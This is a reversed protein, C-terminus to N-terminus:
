TFDKEHCLEDLTKEKCSMERIRYLRQVFEVESLKEREDFWQEALSNAPRVIFCWPEKWYRVVLFPLGRTHSSSYNNALSRLARYTPHNIEVEDAKYYKYEVVAVPTGHNYEVMLFDLDVAPCNFGWNKHRKSIEEDRWGTREKRVGNAKRM